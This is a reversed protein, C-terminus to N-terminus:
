RRAKVKFTEPFAEEAAARLRNYRGRGKPTGGAFDALCVAECVIDDTPTGAAICADLEQLLRRNSERGRETLYEGVTEAVFLPRCEVLLNLLEKNIKKDM